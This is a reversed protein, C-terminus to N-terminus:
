FSVKYVESFFGSGIKEKVFDDVSYLASVATKLARCSPGTVSRDKSITRSLTPPQLATGQAAGGNTLNNGCNSMESNNFLFPSASATSASNGNLITNSSSCNKTYAETNYACMVNKNNTFVKAPQCAADVQDFGECTAQSKTPKNLAEPPGPGSHQSLNM